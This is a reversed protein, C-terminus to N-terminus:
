ALSKVSRSHASISGKIDLHWGRPLGRETESRVTM